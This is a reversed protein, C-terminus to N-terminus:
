RGDEYAAKMKEYSDDPWDLAHVLKTRCPACLWFEHYKTTLKKGDHYSTEPYTLKMVHGTAHCANCICNDAESVTTTFKVENQKHDMYAM